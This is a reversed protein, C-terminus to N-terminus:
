HDTKNNGSQYLIGELNNKKLQEKYFGKDVLDSYDSGYTNM